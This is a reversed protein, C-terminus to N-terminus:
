PAARELVPSGRFGCLAAPRRPLLLADGSFNRLLAGDRRNKAYLLAGGGATLMDREELGIITFVGYSGVPQASETGLSRSIDEIVPLGLAALPEMEPVYGLTHEVVLCRPTVGADVATKIAAQVTEGSV